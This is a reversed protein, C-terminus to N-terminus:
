DPLVANAITAGHATFVVKLHEGEVTIDGEDKPEPETSVPTPPPENEKVTPPQPGKEPGTEVTKPPTQNQPENQQTQTPSNQQQSQYYAKQRAAMWQQGFFLMALAVIVGIVTVADFNSEKKEAM